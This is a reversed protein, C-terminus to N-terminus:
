EKYRSELRQDLPENWSRILSQNWGPTRSTSPSTRPRAWREFLNSDCPPVRGAVAGAM